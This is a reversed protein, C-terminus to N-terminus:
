RGKIAGSRSPGKYHPAGLAQDVQSTQGASQHHARGAGDESCYDGFLRACDDPTIPKDHKLADIAWIEALSAFTWIEISEMTSPATM